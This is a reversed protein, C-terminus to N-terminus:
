SGPTTVNGACRTVLEFSTTGIQRYINADRFDNADYHPWCQKPDINWNVDVGACDLMGWCYDLCENVDDREVYSTAGLATSNIRERWEPRNCGTKMVFQVFHMFHGINKEGLSCAVVTM